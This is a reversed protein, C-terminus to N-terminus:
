QLVAAPGRQEQLAASVAAECQARGWKKILAKQNAVQAAVQRSSAQQAGAATAQLVWGIFGAHDTCGHEDRVARDAARQAKLQQRGAEHEEQTVVGQSEFVAKSSKTKWDEAARSMRSVHRSRVRGMQGVARENEMTMVQKVGHTAEFLANVGKGVGVGGLLVGDCHTRTSSSAASKSSSAAVRGPQQKRSSSAASKSSLAAVPSPLQMKSSGYGLKAADVLQQLLVPM